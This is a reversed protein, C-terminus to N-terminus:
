AHRGTEDQRLREQKLPRVFGKALPHKRLIAPLQESANTLMTESALTSGAGHNRLQDQGICPRGSWISEPRYIGQDLSVGVGLLPTQAAGRQYVEILRFLERVDVRADHEISELSGIWRKGIVHEASFTQRCTVAAPVDSSEPFNV